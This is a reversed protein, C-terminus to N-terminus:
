GLAWLATLVLITTLFGVGVARWSGLATEGRVSMSRMARLAAILTGAAIPPIPVLLGRAHALTGSARLRRGLGTVVVLLDGAPIRFAVPLSEAAPLYKWGALAILIGVGVPWVLGPLHEASLAARAANGTGPLLYIAGLVALLTAAWAIWGSLALPHHATRACRVVVLFRAMLITTGIAAISLLSLLWQVLPVAAGGLSTGLLLKAAAGSSLPAGALALAPIALGLMVATGGTGAVVAGVGLFLAGKALGHHVAYVLIAALIAPWADPAALGVGVAVTMYGMQSISSYALVTKPNQQSVGVVIGYFAALLGIVILVAGWQPLALTGLPLFRLWGLLGAKIMAGSLVASAPTPAAPHALPLWVHLPLMGVKIGFGVILLAPIWTGAAQGSTFPLPVTQGDHSLAVLATFVLLEGLIVLVMYVRGARLNEPSREHVVLGYAAFSMLSFFMFFSVADLAVILGFNGAMSLLFYFFFRHAGADRGLYGYAYVGAALWLSSTFGLFVRGTTDLGLHTGLLLWALDVEAGAGWVVFALAPVATWPAFRVAFRRCRSHPIHLTLAVLLPVVFTAVLLGRTFMGLGTEWSM